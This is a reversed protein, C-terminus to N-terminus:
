PQELPWIKDQERTLDDIVSQLKIKCKGCCMDVTAVIFSTTVEEESDITLFAEMLLNECQSCNLRVPLSNLVM